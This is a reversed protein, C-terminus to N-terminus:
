LKREEKGVFSRTCVRISLSKYPSKSPFFHTCYETCFWHFMRCYEWALHVTADLWEVTRHNFHYRCYILLQGVLHL